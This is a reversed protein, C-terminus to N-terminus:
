FSPRTPIDVLRGRPINGHKDYFPVEVLEAAQLSGDRCGVGIRAGPKHEPSHLLVFGIGHGLLPSMAAATVVGIKEGNLEAIGSVVPEGGLCTFGHLRRERPAAQLAAKGMFDSKVDAVFRGLGVDYPTTFRNFDSGANLIGAEIRRPNSADVPVMDLGFPEGVKQFHEWLANADHHPETYIEWGLENTFGTRTITFEQEGLVVRAIGYYDFPDPIGDRSAADLFKLSNPGQVQSVFVDPDSIEVDMGIAHARAWSYFDGDAQVYWFLDENLRVLIGDVLMGGDEYCAIGYGCRGVKLQTIDRTFLKNMLRDADPGSFE